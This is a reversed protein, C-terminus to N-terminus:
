GGEDAERMITKPESNKRPVSIQGNNYEQDWLLKLLRQLCRNRDNSLLYNTGTYQTM